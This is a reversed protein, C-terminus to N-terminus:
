AAMRRQAAVAESIMGAATDIEEETTFRGWGMRLSARALDKPLGLAALVHSERGAASACAAGSSVSLRRLDALLRSGDIGPFAVNLNGRWRKEVSGNIRFPEPLQALM